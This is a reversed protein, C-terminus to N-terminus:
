LCLVKKLKRSQERSVKLVSDPKGKMKLHLQNTSFPVIQDINRLNILQTRNVRFFDKLDLRTELDKLSDFRTEYRNSRTEVYIFPNEFDLWVIDDLDLLTILHGDRVPIRKLQPLHTKSLNRVADTIKLTEETTQRHVRSITAQLREESVPKLLYDLANVEFAKVAYQDFATVFVICPSYSLDCQNVVEFGDLGPMQIDLFVLDPHRQEILNVGDIGNAAEGICRLDSYNGLLYVLEKRAAKEDDIIVYDM